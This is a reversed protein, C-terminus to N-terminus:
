TSSAARVTKRSLAEDAARLRSAPCVADGPRFAGRLLGYSLLQWIWQCDLVDSKRGTIQKTMRPPWWSCRSAPASWCKTSRSGPLGFDIGDGGEDRRLVFALRGDGDPRPHLRRVGPGTEPSVAPDVAVFHRDKGIDIGACDPNVVKLRQMRRNKRAM